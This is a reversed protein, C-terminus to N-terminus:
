FGNFFSDSCLCINGIATYVTGGCLDRLSAMLLVLLYLSDPALTLFANAMKSGTAVHNIGVCLIVGCYCIKLLIVIKDDDFKLYLYLM